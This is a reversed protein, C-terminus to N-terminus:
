MGDKGFQRKSPSEANQKRMSRAKRELALIRERLELVNREVFEIERLREEREYPEFRSCECRFHDLWRILQKELGIKDQAPLEPDLDGTTLDVPFAAAYCALCLARVVPRDEKYWSPEVIEPMSYFRAWQAQLSRKIDGDTGDSYSVATLVTSYKHTEDCFWAYESANKADLAPFILTVDSFRTSALEQCRSPGEGTEDKDLGVQRVSAQRSIRRLDSKAYRCGKFGVLALVSFMFVKSHIM